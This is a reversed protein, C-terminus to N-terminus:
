SGIAEQYVARTARATAAWSFQRARAMGAARLRQRFVPDAAVSLLAGALEKSSGAHLAAGASVEQIAPDNSTIAACGCQMAELVPLGFGEYLSPYVFALAQSYLRPLDSDPVEGMLRLGEGAALPAFDSRTRGVIVLDAGTEARTASWAEVLSALNKRPELTGVFLFFPREPAAVGAVPAFVESAALPTVRVKEPAVGFHAITERRVAESVTLIMRARGLRVLWPTRQRVRAAGNHWAPDRWPSLDHITMVAPTAGLYPVEFNTGHFLEAGERRIAKRVGSLWWLGDGRQGKVLNAPADQMLEFPQDSLLTCTDEPFERALARSLEEVYRRLGGSSLM